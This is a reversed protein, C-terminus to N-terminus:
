KLRKSKMEEWLDKQDDDLQSPLTDVPIAYEACFQRWLVFRLDYQGTSDSVSNDVPPPQNKRQGKEMTGRRGQNIKTCHVLKELILQSSASTM